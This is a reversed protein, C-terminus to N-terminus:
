VYYYVKSISIYRKPNQLIDICQVTEKHPSGIPRHRQWQPVQLWIIIIFYSLEVFWSLIIDSILRYIKAKEPTM